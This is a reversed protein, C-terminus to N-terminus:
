DKIKNIKNYTKLPLEWYYNDGTIIVTDGNIEVKRNKDKRKNKRKLTKKFKKIIKDEKRM